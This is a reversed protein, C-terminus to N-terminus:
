ESAACLHPSKQLGPQSRGFFCQHSWCGLNCFLLPTAFGILKFIFLFLHNANQIRHKRKDASLTRFYKKLLDSVRLQIIDVMLSLVIVWLTENWFAMCQFEGHKTSQPMDSMTETRQAKALRFRVCLSNNPSIRWTRCRSASFQEGLSSVCIVQTVQIYPSSPNLINLTLAFRERRRSNQSNSAIGSTWGDLATLYWLINKIM